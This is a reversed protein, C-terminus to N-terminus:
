KRGSSEVMSLLRENFEKSEILEELTMHMRYRWYHQSIAPINIREQDANPRKLKDDISLWDQLPLITLMSPANLHNSVIQWCIDSTCEEPAIGNKWLIQNYYIQTVNKDEKWWLRLPSMDHTSTTCVSLYPLHQLNNFLEEREKPMREIELSLIQLENMVSPVSAPVMGLDEGCVLMSTSSILSPLKRMAEDRWFQSHRNYFFDDYLRNFCDQAEKDLDKYSYSYQATIRPHFKEPQRKDRVFLVENCLSYLGDRIRLSREDNKGEFLTKIKVQTNYDEKLEYRQWSIARLYQEIVEQRYEGFIDGLFHEHIYPNTMRYEDFWMGSSRIEDVTFPLAPSFYGLLGQVSSLPIEWIRFFGLIHDIRYADFYDAMKRFRKVWWQYGDKAMEGWNYTPFGWNQGFFSFDDPPAGTQVDLNFLHPEVWAEVSDRSIGIPIDGKLIVDHTHAYEKVDVLQKHLLYQTFCSIEISKKADKDTQAFKALKKKDFIKHTKWVRYNATKYVDRLYSFCAYPFLWEENQKYFDNYEKSKLVITGSEKFLDNIYRRKLDLVKDYDVEKLVNLAAAEDLYVKFLEGDNLPYAKLGLYIPHLAYISIANYPYSDTWSHTITTDNIPLVQIIKQGTLKAWDIMKKLDSFEGIGFSDDTRLSFVPIAVGAAKWNMWGHRYIISEVRIYSDKIDVSLPNLIRNEGEEWHVIGRSTEDYIALKYEQPTKIQTANFAIEWNGDKAPILQLARELNWEGLLKSTGCLVLRQGKKVYPCVISLVITQKTYKLKAKNEHAFFSDSFGSTYFYKQEPVGRWTDRIDFYKGSNLRLFHPNGWEKVVIGNTDKVFYYYELEIVDKIELNLSWLSPSVNIMEIAKNEDWNGLEPTSGCVFLTQGWSTFYDVLLKIKM